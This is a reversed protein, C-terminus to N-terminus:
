EWCKGETMLKALFQAELQLKHVGCLHSTGRLNNEKKCENNVAYMAFLELNCIAQEEADSWTQNNVWSSYMRADDTSGRNNEREMKQEACHM